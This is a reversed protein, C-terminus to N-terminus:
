GGIMTPRSKIRGPYITTDMTQNPQVIMANISRSRLKSAVEAYISLDDDHWGPPVLIVTVHHGYYSALRIGNTLSALGMSLGTVVIIRYEGDAACIAKHIARAFGDDRINASFAKLTEKFIPELVPHGISKDYERGLDYLEKLQYINPRMGDMPYMPRVDSLAKKLQQIHSRGINPRLYHVIDDRSFCVLGVPETDSLLRDIASMATYMGLSLEGNRGAISVDMLFFAPLSHVNEFEKVIIDRYKITRTWDIHRINDGPVYNRIGSFDTGGKKDMTVDGVAFSRYQHHMTNPRSYQRGIPLRVDMALSVGLSFSAKFLMTEVSGIAPGITYEGCMTPTLPVVMNVPRGSSLSIREPFSGIGISEDALLSMSIALARPGSYAIAAELTGSQGPARERHSLRCHATIHRRGAALRYMLLAYDLVILTLFIASSFFFIVSATIYGITLLLIFSGILLYASEKLEM